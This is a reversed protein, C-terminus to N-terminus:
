PKDLITRLVKREILKQHLEDAEEVM